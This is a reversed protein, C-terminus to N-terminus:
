QIKSVSKSVIGVVSRHLKKLSPVDFEDDDDVIVLTNFPDFLVAEVRV